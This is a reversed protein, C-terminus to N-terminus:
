TEVTQQEYFAQRRLLYEMRLVNEPSPMWEVFSLTTAELHV